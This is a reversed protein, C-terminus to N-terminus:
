PPGAIPQAIRGAVTAALRAGSPALMGAYLAALDAAVKRSTFLSRACRIGARGYARGLEPNAHLRSLREALTTPDDPPVLYGTVCDVVLHSIGGVAAGIVPRGCAMAELATLGLPEYRPTMVVVDSACYHDRLTARPPRNAFTVQGGVGEAAAIAALRAMEPAAESDPGDAEAGVIVLRAEPGHTRKLRAIGRIVNDIGTRPALRGAHLVVFEDESLGIRGRAAAASGPGLEEPDFGCPVVHVRQADAGYLGVLDARDQPSAAIVRDATKALIEEIAARERPFGDPGGQHLQRARATDHFTIAFPMHLTRRLALAVLGSMFFNAHVVDYRAGRPTCYETLRATFDNMHPLLKERAVSCPPGAPVRIVRVNRDFDVAPASWLDDRRTFIDVQHGARGLERGVQAVYVSQGGGDAGQPALPSAHESIIAIKM